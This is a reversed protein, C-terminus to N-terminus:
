DPLLRGAAEGRNITIVRHAFGGPKKILSDPTTLNNTVQEAYATETAHGAGRGV